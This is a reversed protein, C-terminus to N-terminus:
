FSGLFRIEPHLTLGFKDHSLTRIHDLLKKYDAATAHNANIIFNAHTPSIQADGIRFGKLSLEHDIIWGASKQEGWIKQCDALSPNAFVSGLSNMPQVKTTQATWARVVEQAMKTDGWFLRLRASLIILNPNRQFPSTQYQWDSDNKKLVRTKGTNLDFVKVSVLYDSFHYKGGHINQYVAGGITGPIYAFWQLGTLGQQILKSIALPLPTGSQVIAQGTPLSSEDYDIQSFDLYKDPENERRQTYTASFKKTTASSKCIKIQSARNLVTLGPLGHDSILTNSGNGLLHFDNPALTHNKISQSVFKLVSFLDSQRNAIILFEAPGGIKVTTYPALPQNTLIELNPLSRRLLSMDM